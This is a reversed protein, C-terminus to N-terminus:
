GKVIVKLADIAYKVDKETNFYGFSFRVSGREITKNKKHILPACHLGSRTIIAFEEDLMQSVDSSVQDKINLSVVPGDGLNNSSYIEIIEGNGEDKSAKNIEDLLKLFLAKLRNEHNYIKRIGVSNIFDIGAGLSVIGPTNVTGGEVVEPMERPHVLNTSYSGSGGCLLPKIEIGEKICIGGIGQIAYLSKHGTFCLIDINMKQMDIPIIGASQSVDVILKVGYSKCIEGIKEIDLTKGTVNSMHNICLFKVKKGDNKVEELKQKLDVLIDDVNLVKIDLNLKERDTYLPRLTSNHDIETTIVIDNEEILSKVAFNLATTSNNTFAVNLPNGVNFFKSVKDRVAYIETAAKIALRHGGRGPNANLERMAYNVKEYVIEPKPNSTASNDFYYYERKM